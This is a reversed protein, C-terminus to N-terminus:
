QEADRWREPAEEALRKSMACLEYQDWEVCAQHQCCRHTGEERVHGWVQCSRHPAECIANEVLDYKVEDSEEVVVEILDVEEDCAGEHAWSEM